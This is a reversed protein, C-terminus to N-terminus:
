PTFATCDIEEESFKCCSFREFFALLRERTRRDLWGRWGFALPFNFPVRRRKRTSFLERFIEKYKFGTEIYLGGRMLYTQIAQTSVERERVPFRGSFAEMM